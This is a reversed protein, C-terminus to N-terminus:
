RDLREILKKNYHQVLTSPSLTLANVALRKAEATQGRRALARARFFLVLPSQPYRKLLDAFLLDAAPHDGLAEDVLALDLRVDDRKPDNGLAKEWTERAKKLRGQRRHLLGLRVQYEAAPAMTEARQLTEEAQTFNSMRAYVDALGLYASVLTADRSLADEYAHIAKELYGRRAYADGLAQHPQSSGSDLAQAAQFSDVGQKYLDSHTYVKGLLMHAEFSKRNDHLADEYARIAGRYDLVAERMRGLEIFLKVREAKPPRSALLLEYQRVAEGYAGMRRAHDALERRLMWVDGLRGKESARRISQELRLVTPDTAPASAAYLSALMTTMLFATLWVKM